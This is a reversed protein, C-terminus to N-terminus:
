ESPNPNPAAKERFAALNACKLQEARAFESESEEARGLRAYAVALNAHVVALNPEIAAAKELLAAAEEFRGQGVRMAGLQAHAEARGADVAVARALADEARAEDGASSYNAALTVLLRYDPALAVAKELWEAAKGNEGQLMAVNALLSCLLERSYSTDEDLARRLLEEARAYDRTRMADGAAMVDADGPKSCSPLLPLSVLAFIASIISSFRKM